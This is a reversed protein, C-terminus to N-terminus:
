YSIPGEWFGRGKGEKQTALLTTLAPLEPVSVCSEAPSSCSALFVKCESVWRVSGAVASSMVLVLSLVFAELGSFPSVSLVLLLQLLLEALSQLVSPSPACWFPPASDVLVLAPLSLAEAECSLM